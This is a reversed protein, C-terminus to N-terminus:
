SHYFLAQFPFFFSSSSSSSPSEPMEKDVGPPVWFFRENAFNCFTANRACFHSFPCLAGGGVPCLEGRGM